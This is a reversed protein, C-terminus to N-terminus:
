LPSSWLAENWIHFAPPKLTVYYPSMDPVYLSFIIYAVKQPVNHLYDIILERVHLYKSQYLLNSQNMQERKIHM